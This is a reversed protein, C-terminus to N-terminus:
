VHCTVRSLQLVHRTHLHPVVAAGHRQRVVAGVDLLEGPAAVVHHHPATVTGVNLVLGTLLVWVYCCLLRIM